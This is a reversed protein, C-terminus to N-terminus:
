QVCASTLKAATKEAAGSVHEAAGTYGCKRIKAHTEQLEPAKQAQTAMHLHLLGFTPM